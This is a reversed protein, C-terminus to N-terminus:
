GKYERGDSWKYLGLGSLKGNEWNGELTSMDKWTFKGWGQKQGNYFM